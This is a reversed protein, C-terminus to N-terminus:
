SWFRSHLHALRTRVSACCFYACSPSMLLLVAWLQLLLTSWDPIHEDDPTGPANILRVLGASGAQGRNAVGQAPSRLRWASSRRAQEIHIHDNGAPCCCRFCGSKFRYQWGSKAPTVVPRFFTFVTYFSSNELMEYRLRHCIFASKPLCNPYLVPFFM